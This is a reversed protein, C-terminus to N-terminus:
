LSEQLWDQIEEGTIDTGERLAHLDDMSLSRDQNEFRRKLESVNPTGSDHETPETEITLEFNTVHEGRQRAVQEVAKRLMTEFHFRANPVQEFEGNETNLDYEEFGPRNDYVDTIAQDIGAYLFSLWSVIGNHFKQYDDDAKHLKRGTDGAQEDIDVTDDHMALVNFIKSREQPEINHYILWGNGLTNNLCERIEWDKGSDHDRPTRETLYEFQTANFPKPEYNRPM